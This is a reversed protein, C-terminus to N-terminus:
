HSLCFYLTDSICRKTAASSSSAPVYLKDARKILRRFNFLSLLLDM